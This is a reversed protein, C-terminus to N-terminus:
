CVCLHVVMLGPMRGALANNLNATPSQQLDKTTITAISGTITAKRQTTYGIVVVEEMAKSDEVLRVAIRDRGSLAVEEPQFGVYSFVLVADAYPVEISFVGEADTITGINLGRVQINVGPLPDNFQDVVTGSVKVKRQDPALVQETSKESYPLLVVQGNRERISINKGKLAVKLTEELTSNKVQISITENDNVVENSYIISVGVQRHIEDFVQQLTVNKMTLSIQSKLVNASMSLGVICLVCVILLRRCGFVAGSRKRKHLNKM